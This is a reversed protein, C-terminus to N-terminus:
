TNEFINAEDVVEFTRNDVLGKIEEMREKGFQNVNWNAENNPYAARSKTAKEIWYIDPNSSPDIVKIPNAEDVNLPKTVPKVFTSCFLKRVQSMQVVVTEGDIYIFM